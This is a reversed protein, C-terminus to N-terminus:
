MLNLTCFSKSNEIEREVEVKRKYVKKLFAWIKELSKGGKFSVQHFDMEKTIIHSMFAEKDDGYLFYKQKENYAAYEPVEFHRYTWVEDIRM